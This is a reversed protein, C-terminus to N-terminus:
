AARGDVLALADRLGVMGGYMPSTLRRAIALRERSKRNRDAIVRQATRWEARHAEVEQELRFLDDTLYRAWWGDPDTGQQELHVAEHARLQPTLRNGSPVYIHPAYSFIVGEPLPGFREEISRRNPPNGHVVAPINM